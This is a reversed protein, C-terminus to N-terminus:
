RRLADLLRAVGETATELVNAIEHQSIGDLHVGATVCVTVGTAAHIARAADLVIAHEKHPSLRLCGEFRQGDDQRGVLAAAGIHDRGGSVHVRLDSACRQWTFRLRTRGSGIEFTDM